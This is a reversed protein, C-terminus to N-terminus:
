PWNIRARKLLLRVAIIAPQARVIIIKVPSKAGNREGYAGDM